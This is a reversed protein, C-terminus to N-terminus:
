CVAEMTFAGRNEHLVPWKQKAEMPVRWFHWTKGPKGRRTFRVAYYVTFWPVAEGRRAIEVLSLYQDKYKQDHSIKFRDHRTKKCEILWLVGRVPHFAWLDGTGLSGAARVVVFGEAELTNKLEREYDSGTM